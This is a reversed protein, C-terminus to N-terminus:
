LLKLPDARIRIGSLLIIQADTKVASVALTKSLIHHIQIGCLGADADIMVDCILPISRRIKYLGIGACGTLYKIIKQILFLDASIHCLTDIGPDKMIRIDELVAIGRLPRHLHGSGHHCLADIKGADNVLAKISFGIDLILDHSTSHQLTHQKQLSLTNEAHYSFLIHIKVAYFGRIQVANHILEPNRLAHLHCDEQILGLIM